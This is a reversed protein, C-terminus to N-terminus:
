KNFRAISFIMTANLLWLMATLIWHISLVQFGIFLGLLFGMSGFGFNKFTFALGMLGIYFFILVGLLIVGATDTLDVLHM